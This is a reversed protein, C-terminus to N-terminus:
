SVPQRRRIFRRFFYSLGGRLLYALSGERLVKVTAALPRHEVRMMEVAWLTQCVRRRYRYRHEPLHARWLDLIELSEVFALHRYRATASDPHVRYLCQVEQVCRVSFNEAVAAFLWYDEAFTFRPPIPRIAEWARRHIMASPMPIISGQELLVPLIRGEPLPRGKYRYITEGEDGRSSISRTRAYVLGLNESPKAAAALALQAELKGPLWIDDHDLFAMWEARALDLAHTRAEALTMKRPAVAVRFRPDGRAQIRAVTDDESRNDWVVAEWDTVTQACLSDLTEDLYRTSNYTNIIVSVRPVGQNM